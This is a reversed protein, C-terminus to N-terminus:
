QRTLNGLLALLRSVQTQLNYETAVHFRANAGMALREQETANVIQLMAAALSASTRERVSIGSQGYQQTGAHLGALAGVPPGIWPLACSSAELAAMCQAEHRSTLVFANADRYLSPLKDHAAEGVFDVYRMLHLASVEARLRRELPGSGVIRLRVKRDPALRHLECLGRLLWAHDKVDILSGVTIFTFPKNNPKRCDSPVFRTTDVGLAWRAAKHDPLHAKQTAAHYVPESPLTILDANRLTSSVLCGALGHRWNGYGIAPIRTLEGGAIHALCPLRMLKAARTAVWGSETAWIGIIASFPSKEHEARIARLTDVWLKFLSAGYLRKGAIAGGGVAHVQVSGIAYNARMCPYRLAFIHTEVSRALEAALNTFAPICWDDESARFGPIVIALKM